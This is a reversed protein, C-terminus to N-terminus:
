LLCEINLDTERALDVYDSGCQVVPRCLKQKNIFIINGERGDSLRCRNQIYTNVINELFCLVFGVDYRQLGEQEFIEVVKFPCIPARYVRAATMADYVDVIAVMKAYPELQNAKLGLPYGSGDCREHHMLAANCIHKDIHHAQLLRFGEVPHKKIQHYEPETLKGPKIIIDHPVLLKGVDHLLGCATAMETEEESLQLWRAFVHCILGVNLCHAFTSDDYERMNHLMDLISIHGRDDAVMLLARDLLERVDLQTNKLVVHNIASRFSDVEEEYMKRFDHFEQSNKIREFYSSDTKAQSSIPQEVYEDKVYITLVGYLELKIIHADTLITDKPLILQHKSTKIDEAIIMGPILQLTSLRKMIVNVAKRRLM